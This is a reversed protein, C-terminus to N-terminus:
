PRPASMVAKLTRITDTSLLNDPVCRLVRWGHVAAANYKEVDKLFGSGRTHRGGTWIGGEVELAIMQLPWAYDFRWKRAVHFKYETVPEPLGSQKCLQSFIREISM